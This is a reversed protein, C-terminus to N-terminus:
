LDAFFSAHQDVDHVSKKGAKSKATRRKTAPPPQMVDSEGASEDSGDASRAILHAEDSVLMVAPEPEAADTEVDGEELLPALDTLKCWPRHKCHSAREAEHM